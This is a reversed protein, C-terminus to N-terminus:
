KVQVETGVKVARALRAAEWNLLRFCGHSGTKGIDQPRVTGHIGYGPRDLGIWAAGVPNRPGPAIRLKKDVNTVEPWVAPDFTYDPATAISQVHLTGSPRKEMLKAISCHTLFIPKGKSSYGIILKDELRVELHDVKPTLSAATADPVDPLTVTDGPRLDDLAVNPNLQTVMDLSCWGRESLLERMDAYGSVELTARENWDEPIPGTILDADARTIRYTRKWTVSGEQTAFKSAILLAESTADDLEGTAAMDRSKQFHEIAIKTKRGPKGDVLGPSFGCRALATQLCAGSLRAAAAQAPATAASADAVTGLPASTGLAAALIALILPSM